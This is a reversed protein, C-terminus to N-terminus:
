RLLGGMSQRRSRHFLHARDDRGVPQELGLRWNGCHEPRRPVRPVVPQRRPTFYAETVGYSSNIFYLHMTYSPDVTNSSDVFGTLTTVASSYQCDYSGEYGMVSGGTFPLTGSQYSVDRVTISGNGQQYGDPTSSEPWYWEIIHANSDIMFLHNNQDSPSYYGFLPSGFCPYPSVATEQGDILEFPPQNPLIEPTTAVVWGASSSHTYLNPANNLASSNVTGQPSWGQPSWVVVHEIGGDVPSFWSTLQVPAPTTQAQATATVAMGALMASAAIALSLLLHRPSRSIM